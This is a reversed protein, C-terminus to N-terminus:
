NKILRYDGKEYIVRGDRARSVGIAEFLEEKSQAEHIESKLNKLPSGRHFGKVLYRGAQYVAALPRLFAYRQALRWNNVGKIKLTRYAGRFSHMSSLMHVSTRQDDPMKIGFNGCSLVYSMLKTCIREDADACWKHEPLGLFMECMRTVMIALKEHGTKRATEQFIPWQDDSLCRDVFMMWDLIQRLGIGDELHHNVHEILTLGNIMDPLVHTDNVNDMILQDLLRTEDM